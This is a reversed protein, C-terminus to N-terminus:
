RGRSASWSSSAAPSSAPSCTRREGEEIDLNIQRLVYNKGARTEYCKEINKLQIM